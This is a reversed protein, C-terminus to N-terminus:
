IKEKRSGVQSVETIESLFRNPHKRSIEFFFIDPLYPLANDM